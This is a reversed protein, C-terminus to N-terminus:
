KGGYRRAVIYFVTIVLKHIYPVICTFSIFDVGDNSSVFFDTLFQASLLFYVFITASAICMSRYSPIFHLLFPILHSESQASPTSVASEKIRTVNPETTNSKIVWEERYKGQRIPKKSTHYRKKRKSHVGRKVPYGPIETEIESVTVCALRPSCKPYYCPISIQSKWQDGSM